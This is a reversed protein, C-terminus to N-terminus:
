EKTLMKLKGGTEEDLKLAAPTLKIEGSSCGDYAGLVIGKQLDSPYSLKQDDAWYRFGLFRLNM